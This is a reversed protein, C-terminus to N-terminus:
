SVKWTQTVSILIIKMLWLCQLLTKSIQLVSWIFYMLASILFLFRLINFFCNKLWDKYTCSIHTSDLSVSVIKCTGGKRRWKTKSMFVRKPKSKKIIIYILSLPALSHKQRRRDWGLSICKCFCWWVHVSIREEYELLNEHTCLLCKKSIQSLILFWAKLTM